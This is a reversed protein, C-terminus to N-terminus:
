PHSDRVVAAAFQYSTQRIRCSRHVLDLRLAALEISARRDGESLGVTLRRVFKMDLHDGDQWDDKM